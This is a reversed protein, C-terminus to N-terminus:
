APAPEANRREEVWARLAEVGGVDSLDLTDMTRKLDDGDLWGVNLGEVIDASLSAGDEGHEHLQGPLDAPMGIFRQLAPALVYAPLGGLLRGVIDSQEAIPAVRAAQANAWAAWGRLLVQDPDRVDFGIGHDASGATDYLELVVPEGDEPEGDEPEGGVMALFRLESEKGFLMLASSGDSGGMAALPRGASDFITVQATQDSPEWSIGARVQGDDDVVEFRRARIVDDM